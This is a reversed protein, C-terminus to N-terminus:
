HGHKDVAGNIRVLYFIIWAIAINGHLRLISGWTTFVPFGGIIFDPMINWVMDLLVVTYYIAMHIGWILINISWLWRLRDRNSWKILGVIIFITVLLSILQVYNRMTEIM